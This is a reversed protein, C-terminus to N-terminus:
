SFDKPYNPPAFGGLLRTLHATHTQLADRILNELDTNMRTIPAAVAIAGICNSSADFIPAAHSHVDKEFGSISIAYGRKRTERLQQRIKSPDTITKSTRSKLPHELVSDVFDSPSYALVALGSGTAHLLLIEADEMRVQTGHANSYSYAISTLISGQLYSLHATEGTERSLDHLVDLAVERMPVAAERLAALRLFAPGLRYQRGQETQEVFGHASLETLLRHTTAKNIGALRALDSLGIVPDKRSFLDLLSLAKSTTGM